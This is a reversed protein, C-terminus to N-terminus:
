SFEYGASCSCDGITVSGPPSISNDYCATCTANSVQATLGSYTNEPCDTCLDSGTSSKFKGVACASCGAANSGTFGLNCLCMTSNSSGVMSVANATCAM